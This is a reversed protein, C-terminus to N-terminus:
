ELHQLYDAVAASQPQAPRRVTQGVRVVGETVDGCPLREEVGEGGRYAPLETEAVFWSQRLQECGASETWRGM